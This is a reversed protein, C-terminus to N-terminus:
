NRSKYLKKQLTQKDHEGVRRRSCGEETIESKVSFTSQKSVCVDAVTGNSSWM